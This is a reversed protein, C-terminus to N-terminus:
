RREIPSFDKDCRCYYKLWSIMTSLRRHRYVSTDRADRYDDRLSILHRSIFLIQLYFM